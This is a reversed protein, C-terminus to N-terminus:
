NELRLELRLKYSSGFIFVDQSEFSSGELHIIVAVYPFFVTSFVYYFLVGRPSAKPDDWPTWMDTGPHCDVTSCTDFWELIKDV